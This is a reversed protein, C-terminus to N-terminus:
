YNIQFQSFEDGLLRVQENFRADEEAIFRDTEAELAELKAARTVSRTKPPSKRGGFARSNQYGEENESEAEGESQLDPVSDGDADGEADGDADGERRPNILAENRDILADVIKEPVNNNLMNSALVSVSSPPQVPIDVRGVSTTLASTTLEARRQFTPARYESCNEEIWRDSFLKTM